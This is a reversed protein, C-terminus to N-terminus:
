LPTLLRSTNSSPFYHYKRAWSNDLNLWLFGFVMDIEHKQRARFLFRTWERIESYSEAALRVSGHYKVNVRVIWAEQTGFLVRKEVRPMAYPKDEVSDEAVDEEDESDAGDKTAEKGKATEQHESVSGRVLEGSLGRDLSPVNSEHVLYDRGQFSLACYGLCGDTIDVFVPIRGNRIQLGLVGRPQTTFYFLLILNTAIIQKCIVDHSCNAISHFVYNICLYIFWSSLM